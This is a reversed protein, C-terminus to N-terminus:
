PSADRLHEEALLEYRSGTPSLISRYLAVRDVVFPAARMPAELLSTANTPHRFRALTVHARFPRHDPEVGFREGIEACQTAVRGIMGVTDVLAVVLVTARRASGYAEISRLGTTLPPAEAALGALERAMPGAASREVNGLFALTVHLRDPRLWRPPSRLREGFPALTKQLDVLERVIGHPLPLAFFGRFTTTESL